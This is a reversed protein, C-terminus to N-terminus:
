HWLFVFKVTSFRLYWFRKKQIKRNHREGYFSFETFKVKNTGWLHSVVSQSWSPSYWTLVQHFVLNQIDIYILILPLQQLKQLIRFGLHQAGTSNDDDYSLSDISGKTALTLSITNSFCSNSFLSRSINVGNRASDVQSFQFAFFSTKRGSPGGWADPQRILVHHLPHVKFNKACILKLM